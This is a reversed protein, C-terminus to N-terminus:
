LLSTVVAWCNYSQSEYLLNFSGTKKVVHGWLNESWSRVTRESVVIKVQEEKSQIEM